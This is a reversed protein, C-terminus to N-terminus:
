SGECKFFGSFHLTLRCRISNDINHALICEFANEGNDARCAVPRPYSPATM